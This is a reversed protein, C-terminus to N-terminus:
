GFINGDGRADQHNLKVDIVVFADTAKAIKHDPLLLLQDTVVHVETILNDDELLCFFPIEDEQPGDNKGIDEEDKPIRFGDFLTKLQGDIDGMCYIHKKEGPRLLLIDLRCRLTFDETVLPLFDYGQRNWNKGITRIGNEFRQNETPVLSNGIDIHWAGKKTKVALKRLNTNITWLRRLQPHLVRRIRHKDEGRGRTRNGSAPLDGSYLLRFEVLNEEEIEEGSIIFTEQQM